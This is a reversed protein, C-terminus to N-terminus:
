FFSLVKFPKLTIIVVSAKLTKTRRSEHKPFIAALTNTLVQNPFHQVSSNKGKRVNIKILMTYEAANCSGTVFFECTNEMEIPDWLKRSLAKTYM